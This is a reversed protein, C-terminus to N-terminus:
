AEGEAPMPVRPPEQKPQQAQGHWNARGQLASDFAALCALLYQALIFDPTDSGNERSYRNILDRLDTEFSPSVEGLDPTTMM